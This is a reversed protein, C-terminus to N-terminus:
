AGRLAYLMEKMRSRITRPYRELPYGFEHLVDGAHEEFITRDAISLERRWLGIKDMNPASVSSSHWQLSDAPMNSTAVEHYLLMANDYDEGIHACIRRLERPPDTVLDEYHLEMYQEGLMHGLKRTIMTEWRWARAMTPINHIGWSIGRNSIAVDRGDRIIHIIRCGPFLRWLVDLQSGYGPTKDGWHPKKLSEAYVDFIARILDAYSRIPRALIAARDAILKGRMVHENTGIDTLLRGVNSQTTLDGYEYLRRYFSPIFNSEFPVVLRPHANLMLRMM